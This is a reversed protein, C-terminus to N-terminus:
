NRLGTDALIRTSIEEVSYHTTDVFPIGARRFISEVGRVENDCNRASAYRSNPQREQRIAQLRRPHITLGYIKKKFPRLVRPLQMDDLDDETIPYNAARVGFQLAMYLCTPTKGSRSVGVLIIDAKDYERTIAGDDNDLAYHMANIRSHYAVNREISHQKGISRSSELGLENELPRIFSEFVDINFADCAAIVKRIEQDVITDFILPKVGDLQRAATVKAVVAQAKAITDVYPITIRNFQAQEFQALLSSGLGEVTLGTGDSIFFATRLTSM